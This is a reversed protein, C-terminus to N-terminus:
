SMGKNIPKKLRASKSQKYLQDISKDQIMSKVNDLLDQKEESSLKRSAMTPNGEEDTEGTPTAAEDAEDAPTVEILALDHELDISVLEWSVDGLDIDILRVPDVEDGILPNYSIVRGTLPVSIQM